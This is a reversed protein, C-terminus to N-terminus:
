SASLYNGITGILTEAHDEWFCGLGEKEYNERFFLIMAAAGARSTPQNSLFETRAGEEVEIGHDRLRDMEDCEAHMPKKSAWVGQEIADAKILCEGHYAHAARLKEIRAFVPDTAAIVPLSAVPLAAIGALM